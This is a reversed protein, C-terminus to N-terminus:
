RGSCAMRSHPGRRSTQRAGDAHSPHSVLTPFSGTDVTGPHVSTVLITNSASTLKRKVLQRAFLINGLKTRGYAVTPDRKENIEELSAFAADSPAMRHLESSQMCIRVSVPPSSEATKKMLPLLRLTLVFHSLNNVQLLTTLYTRSFVVLNVFPM